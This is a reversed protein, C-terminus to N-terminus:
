RLGNLRLGGREDNKSQIKSKAPTSIKKTMTPWDKNKKPLGTMSAGKSAASLNVVRRSRLGFRRGLLTLPKGTIVGNKFQMAFKQAWSMTAASRLLKTCLFSGPVLYAAKM